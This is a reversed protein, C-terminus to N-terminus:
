SSWQRRRELTSQTHRNVLILNLLPSTIRVSPKPKHPTSGHSCRRPILLDMTQSYSTRRAHIHTTLSGGPDSEQRRPSYALWNCAGRFETAKLIGLWVRRTPQSVDRRDYILTSSQSCFVRHVSLSLLYANYALFRMARRAM